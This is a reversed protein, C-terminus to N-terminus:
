TFYIESIAIYKGSTAVSIQLTCGTTDVDRLDLVMEYPDVTNTIYKNATYVSVGNRRLSINVNINTTDYGRLMITLFSYQKQIALSTIISGYGHILNQYYISGETTLVNWGDLPLLEGFTDLNYNYVGSNLSADYVIDTPIHRYTEVIRPILVGSGWYSGM